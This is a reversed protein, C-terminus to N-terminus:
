IRTDVGWLLRERPCYVALRIRGKSDHSRYFDDQGLPSNLRITSVPPM